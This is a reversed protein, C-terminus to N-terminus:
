KHNSSCSQLPHFDLGNALYPWGHEELSTERWNFCQLCSQPKFPPGLFKFQIFELPPFQFLSEASIMSYRHQHTLKLSNLLQSYNHDVDQGSIKLSQLYTRQIGQVIYGGRTKKNNFSYCIMWLYKFFAIQEM